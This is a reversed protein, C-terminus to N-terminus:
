AGALLVTVFDTLSGVTRFPHDESALGNSILGVDRGTIRVLRSELDSSFAVFELSDISSDEALLPTTEDAVIREAPEREKNLSELCQRILDAVQSREM